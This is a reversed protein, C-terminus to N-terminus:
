LSGLCEIQIRPGHTGSINRKLVVTAKLDKSVEGGTDTVLIINCTWEAQPPSAFVASGTVSLIVLVAAITIVARRM